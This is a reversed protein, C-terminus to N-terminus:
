GSRGSRRDVRNRRAHGQSECRDGAADWRTRPRPSCRGARDDGEESRGNWRAPLFGAYSDRAQPAVYEHNSHQRAPGVLGIAHVLDRRAGILDIPADARDLLAALEVHMADGALQERLATGGSERARGTWVTRETRRAGHTG